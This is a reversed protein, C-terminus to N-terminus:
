AKSWGCLATAADSGANVTSADPMALTRHLDLLAAPTRPGFNLLALDDCVLVRRAQGAPTMALGPLRWLGFEGGLAALGGHTAIVVEPAAAILAEAGVAKYGQMTSFANAVGLTLMVNDAATDRGAVMPTMGSHSLMFMAQRESPPPLDELHQLEARVSDALANGATERGMAQAVAIVKDPIAELSPPADIRIVEVGSAELQAFVERPGAQAGVLLRQPRLSLVGEASLHRLYGVSPLALLSDPYRSTDDRGVLTDSADLAAIIEAIDGGIVVTRLADDAFAPLPLWGCALLWCILWPLASRRAPKTSM